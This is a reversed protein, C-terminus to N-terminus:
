KPEEEDPAPPLLEDKPEGKTEALRSGFYFGVVVGSLVIMVHPFENYILFHTASTIVIVLAIFARVTGRPAWLPENHRSFKM